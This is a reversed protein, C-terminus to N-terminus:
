KSVFTNTISGRAEGPPALFVCKEQLKLHVAPLVEAPLRAQQVVKTIDEVALVHGPLRSDPEVISLDSVCYKNSNHYYRKQTINRELGVAGAAVRSIM